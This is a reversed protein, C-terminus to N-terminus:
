HMHSHVSMFVARNSLTLERKGSFALIFLFVYIEQKQRCQCSMVIYFRDFPVDKKLFVYYDKANLSICVGRRAMYDDFCFQNMNRVSHIQEYDGKIYIVDDFSVNEIGYVIVDYEGNDAIIYGNKIDTVRFISGNSLVYVKGFSLLISCFLLLVLVAVTEHSNKRFWLLGTFLLLKQWLHICLILLVFVIAAFLIDVQKCHFIIKSKQLFNTM